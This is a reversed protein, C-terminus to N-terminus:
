RGREIDQIPKRTCAHHLDHGWAFSASRAASITAPRPSTGSTCIFHRQPLQPERCVSNRTTPDWMRGRHGARAPDSLPRRNRLASPLQGHSASKDHGVQAPSM